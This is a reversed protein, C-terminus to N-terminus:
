LMLSNCTKFVKFQQKNSTQGWSCQLLLFKFKCFGNFNLSHKFTNFVNYNFNKEM